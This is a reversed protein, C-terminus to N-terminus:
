AREELLLGKENSLSTEESLYKALELLEKPPFQRIVEGSDKLVKVIVRDTDQDIEIKLHTNTSKLVESVKEWAQDIEARDILEPSQHEFGSQKRAATPAQAAAHAPEGGRTPTALLDAKPTVPSIM